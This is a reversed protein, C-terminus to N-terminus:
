GQPNRLEAGRSIFSGKSNKKMVTIPKNSKCKKTNESDSIAKSLGKVFPSTQTYPM